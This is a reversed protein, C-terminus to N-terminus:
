KGAFLWKKAEKRKLFLKMEYGLNNMVTETFSLHNFQEENKVVVSLKYDPLWGMNTAANVLNFKSSTPHQGKLDIFALIFNRTTTKCLDAITSWREQAEKFEKGPVIEGKIHVELYEPHVRHELTYPM